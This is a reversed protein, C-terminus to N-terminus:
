DTWGSWLWSDVPQLYHALSWSAKHADQQVESLHLGSLDEAM